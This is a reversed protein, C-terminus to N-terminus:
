PLACLGVQGYHNIFTEIQRPRLVNGDAPFGNAGLFARADNFGPMVNTHIFSFSVWEAM